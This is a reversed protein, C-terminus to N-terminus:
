LQCIFTLFLDPFSPLNEHWQLTRFGWLKQEKVAKYRLGTMEKFVFVQLSVVFVAIIAHDSMILLFGFALMFLGVIFRTM